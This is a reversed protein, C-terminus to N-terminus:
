HKGRELKAKGKKKKETVEGIQKAKCTRTAGSKLEPSAKLKRPLACLVEKAHRTQFCLFGEGGEGGEREQKFMILEPTNAVQGGERNKKQGTGKGSGAPLTASYIRERSREEKGHARPRTNGVQLRGKGGTSEVSRAGRFAPGTTGGVRMGSRGGETVWSVLPL